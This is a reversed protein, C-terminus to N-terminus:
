WAAEERAKARAESEGPSEGRVHRRKYESDVTTKMGCESCTLEHHWVDGDWEVYTSGDERSVKEGRHEMIGQCKLEPDYREDSHSVFTGRHRRRLEAHTMPMSHADRYPKTESM